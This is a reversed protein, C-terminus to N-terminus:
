KGAHKKAYYDLKRTAAKTVDIRHPCAKMIRGEGDFNFCGM